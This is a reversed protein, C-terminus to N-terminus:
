RRARPVPSTPSSSGSSGSACCVYDVHANQENLQRLIEEVEYFYGLCGIPTSGGAPMVYVKEGSAEYEAVVQKTAEARLKVTEARIEDPTLNKSKDHLASTDLFRVDCGLIADLLLNGSLKEPPVGNELTAIIISKM